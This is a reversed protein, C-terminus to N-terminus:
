RGSPTKGKQPPPTPNNCSTTCLMNCLMLAGICAPVVHLLSTAMKATEFVNQQKRRCIRCKRFNYMKLQNLYMLTQALARVQSM